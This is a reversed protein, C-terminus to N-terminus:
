SAHDLLPLIQQALREAAVACYREDVEVGIARRGELKAAVLTSGSGAFPDLVTEGLRSSAEVLERLLALPKDTPHRGEQPAPRGYHLVSGRRLRANLGGRPLPQGTVPSREGPANAVGFLIVEHEIGWPLSLDGTGGGGKDWILECASSLPLEPAAHMGFVYAHRKPRLTRLALPLWSGVALGGDDNAMPGFPLTRQLGNWRRGHSWGGEHGVGYPPDTLLLDVSGPAVGPLVERCDGCYLRVHADQYYPEM